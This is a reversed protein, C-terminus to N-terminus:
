NLIYQELNSNTSLVDELMEDQIDYNVKMKEIDEKELLDVLDDESIGSHYTIYNELTAQDIQEKNTSLTNFIPVSLALILVAATAFLWRKKSHFLSIVKPEEKPLQTMLKESFMDFYGEPTKFGTTIKPENELKFDKMNM